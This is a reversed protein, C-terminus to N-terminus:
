RARSWRAALVRGEVPLRWGEGPHGGRLVWLEGAAVGAADAPLTRVCALYGGDPSVSPSSLREHFVDTVAVSSGDLGCLLVNSAAQDGAVTCVFGSADPLWTPEGLMTGTRAIVRSGEDETWLRVSFDTDVFLLRADTPSFDPEFGYVDVGLAAPVGGEAPLSSIGGLAVALAGGDSRFSPSAAAYSYLDGLGIGGAQVVVEGAVVDVANAAIVSKGAVRASVTQLVGPGLDAVGAVRVVQEHGAQPYPALSVTALERGGQVYVGVLPLNQGSLNRVTVDVSGTALGAEELAAFSPANTLRRLGAPSLEYLDHSFCSWAMEHSASFVLAGGDPRWDLGLCGGPQASSWLVQTASGDPASVGVQLSGDAAEAVWAISGALAPRRDAGTARLSVDDLCATVMDSELSVWVVCRRGEREAESLAALAAEDLAVRSTQWTPGPYSELDVACLEVLRNWGSDTSIALAISFSGLRAQFGEEAYLRWRCSLTAADLRAPLYVDQLASVQTGLLSNGQLSAGPGEFGAEPAAGSVGGLLSWGAAGQSFDGNRLLEADDLGIEGGTSTPLEWPDQACALTILLLPLLPLPRM